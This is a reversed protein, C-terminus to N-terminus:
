QPQIVFRGSQNTGLFYGTANTQNQLIVGKLTNKRRTLPDTYSGTVTGNATSLTLSLQNTLPALSKVTNNTSVTLVGNTEAGLNGGSLAITATSLSLLPLGTQFTFPSISVPVSLIFGPPTYKTAAPTPGFWKLTPAANPEFSIWGFCAGKGSAQSIYLPLRSNAAIPTTQNVTTGDPLNGKIAAIGTTSIAATAWGNGHLQSSADDVGHFALTYKGAFASAPNAASFTSRDAELSATWSGDTVSGIIQNDIEGLRLSILLSSLGKRPITFTTQKDIAFRGSFSYPGGQTIVKGSFTANKGLQLTIWGSSEHAPADAVEFLGNYNGALTPFPNPVFNATLAADQFMAFKLPNNTASLTGSWNSFLQGSAAVAKLTVTNGLAIIQGSTAGTIKGPGNTSLTIASSRRVTFKRTLVPSESGDADVCKVSLTYTGNTAPISTTWSNAGEIATFDGTNLKWLVSAIATGAPNTATGSVTIPSALVVAKAAPNSITVVPQLLLQAPTSTVAGMTNTIIVSYLSSDLASISSLTLRATNAGTVKNKINTLAVGNKLWQYTLVASGKASVSFTAKSGLASVTNTPNTTISPFVALSLVMNAGWVNGVSGGSVSKGTTRTIQSETYDTTTARLTFPTNSPLPVLAYIGNDDTTTSYTTGDSTQATVTIGSLATGNDDTVRGSIIEGRGTVFTNYVCKIVSEFTGDATDITPLAYWADDEGSWGLNIHHYLTGSDYGYGDCVVAHGGKMSTSYIGLIVPKRADMNPNLMKHLTNANGSYTNAISNAYHFVSTSADSWFDMNVSVAADYVLAGIAQRQATSTSSSVWLPMSNWNYPGGSGNGGRLSATTPITNIYIDFTETGVSTTPHQYYRMLQSMATAVCGAPYNHKNGATYPPTYYNFLATGGATAQGWESEVFPAVRLESISYNVTELRANATPAATATALRQWKQKAQLRPEADPANPTNKQVAKLRRPLDANLLAQLPGNANTAYSGRRSFAIIPEIQDDASIIVFGSPNLPIVYATAQGSGDRLVTPTGAPSGM